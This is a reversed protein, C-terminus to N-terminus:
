NKSQKSTRSVRPFFLRNCAYDLPLGTCIPVQHGSHIDWRQVTTGATSMLCQPDTPSFSTWFVPYEQEIIHLCEEMEVNWLCLTGNRSGSAITTHDASISVSDVRDAHGCFTKVVGGTQVDWLKVTKDYSGSVLLIGDLSFTLSVVEDTHGPLVATQSGTIADLILIDKGESGLQLLTTGTHSHRHVVM